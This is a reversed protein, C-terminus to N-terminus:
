PTVSEGANQMAANFMPSEEGKIGVGISELVNDFRRARVCVAMPPQEETIVISGSKSVEFGAKVAADSISSYKPTSLDVAAGQNDVVTFSGKIVKLSGDVLYRNATTIARKCNGSMDEYNEAVFGELLLYNIREEKTSQADLIVSHQPQGRSDLDGGVVVGAKILEAKPMGLTASLSLGYRGTGTFNASASKGEEKFWTDAPFCNLDKINGLDEAGNDSVELVTGLGWLSNPRKLVVWGRDEPCDLANAFDPGIPSDPKWPCGSVAITAGVVFVLPALPIIKLM